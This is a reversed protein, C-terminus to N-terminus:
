YTTLLLRMPKDKYYSSGPGRRPVGPLGPARQARSLCRAIAPGRHIHRLPPTLHFALQGVDDAILTRGKRPVGLVGSARDHALIPGRRSRDPGVKTRELETAHLTFLTVSLTALVRAIRLPESHHDIVCGVQTAAAVRTIRLIPDQYRTTVDTVVLLVILHNVRRMRRNSAAAAM